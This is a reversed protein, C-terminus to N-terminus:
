TDAGADRTQKWAKGPRKARRRRARIERDATRADEAHSASRDPRAVQGTLDSDDAYRAIARTRM